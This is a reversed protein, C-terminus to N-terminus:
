EWVVLRTEKPRLMIEQAALQIDRTKLDLDTELTAESGKGMAARAFAGFQVKIDLRTVARADFEQGARRADGLANLATVTGASLGIEAGKALDLWSTRRRHLKRVVTEPEDGIAPDVRLPEDWLACLEHRVARFEEDTLHDLDVELGFFRKDGQVGMTREILVENGDRKRPLVDVIDMHHYVRDYNPHGLAYNEGLM